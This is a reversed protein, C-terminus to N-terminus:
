EQVGITKEITDLISECRTIEDEEPSHEFYLYTVQSNSIRHYHNSLIDFADLTKSTCRSSDTPLFFTHDVKEQLAVARNYFDKLWESYDHNMGHVMVSYVLMDIPSSEVILLESKEVRDMVTERGKLLEDQANCFEMMSNCTAIRNLPEVSYGNEKLFSIAESKGQGMAGALSVIM